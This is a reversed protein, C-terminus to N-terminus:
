SRAALNGKVGFYRSRMREAAYSALLLLMLVPIIRYRPLVIVPVYFALYGLYILPVIPDLMRRRYATVFGPVAFALLFLYSM